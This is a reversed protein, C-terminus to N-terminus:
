RESAAPAATVLVPYLVPMRTSFPFFYSKETQARASFPVVRATM